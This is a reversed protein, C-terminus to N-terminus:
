AQKTKSYFAWVIRAQFFKLPYVIWLHEGNRSTGEVTVGCLSEIAVFLTQLGRDRLFWIVDHGREVMALSHYDQCKGCLSAPFSSDVSRTLDGFPEHGVLSHEIRATAM